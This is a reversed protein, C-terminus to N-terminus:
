ALSVRRYKFSSVLKGRVYHEEYVSKFTMSLSAIVPQSVITQM